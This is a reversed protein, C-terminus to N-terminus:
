RPPNRPRTPPSGRHPQTGPRPPPRRDPARRGPWRPRTLAPFAERALGTAV